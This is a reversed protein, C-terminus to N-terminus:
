KRYAWLIANQPTVEPDVYQSLNNVVMRENNTQFINRHIYESRGYDILRQCARGLGQISCSLGLERVIPSINTESLNEADNEVPTRAHEM